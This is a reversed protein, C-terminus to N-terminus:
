TVNEIGFVILFAYIEFMNFDFSKRELLGGVTAIMGKLMEAADVYFYSGYIYIKSLRSVILLLEVLLLIYKM